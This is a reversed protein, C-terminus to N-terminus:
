AQLTLQLVKWCPMSFINVGFAVLLLLVHQWNVAINDVAINGDAVALLPKLGLRSWSRLIQVATATKGPLKACTSVSVHVVLGLWQVRHWGSPGCLFQMNM